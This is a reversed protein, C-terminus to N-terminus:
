VFLIVGRVQEGTAARIARGYVRVQREYDVCRAATPEADTKFDVIVWGSTSTGDARDGQQRTPRLEERFALDVVGEVIGGDQERLLIPCERRCWTGAARAEQLLPHRLAGAVAITAAEIEEASAGVMRGQTGAIKGILPEASGLDILSLLAHVLVGFRKGRPRGARAVDTQQTEVAIGDPENAAAVAMTGVSTGAMTGAPEPLKRQTVTQVRLTPEGGKRLSDARHAQWEAHKREGEFAAGGDDAALIRQQRVGADAERDLGLVAPDWWVVRHEGVEPQHQGPQVSDEPGLPVKSPREFVSDEGFPPCGPPVAAHRWQGPKPYVVPHLLDVWGEAPEDGVVPVVLLERARTAAVYALRVAEEEDHRLVEDRHEALEVPISFALPMAWLRKAVDVYRSPNEKRTPCTPDALIVVPFELGKAKHVTMIRVGSTGEEVIPAEAVAGREAEEELRRVFARFSTAGAAEFRRAHDLVRFLNALAQEGGPWVAIGAHARTAELLQAVTDAVPHRNRGIHLRRLISLADAVPQTVDDLLAADVPRMPHVGRHVHRFALLPDDGLAFFPGRLTAFVSLEDDPWEIATLANRIALVEEREHFSRGGVLVHRIRRAELARVYLRTVDQEGNVFRRFLLCIHRSEIPVKGDRRDRESV